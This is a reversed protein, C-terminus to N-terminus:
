SSSRDCANQGDVQSADAGLSCDYVRMHVFRVRISVGGHVCVYLCIRNWVVRERLRKKRAFAELGSNELRAHRRKGLARVPHGAGVFVVVPM